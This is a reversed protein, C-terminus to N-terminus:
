PFCNFKIPLTVGLYIWRKALADPFLPWSVRQLMCFVRLCEWMLKLMEM